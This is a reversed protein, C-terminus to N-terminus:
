GDIMRVVGCLRVKPEDFIEEIGQDQLKGLWGGEAEPSKGVLEGGGTWAARTIVDFTTAVILEVPLCAAEKMRAAHATPQCTRAWTRLLSPKTTSSSDPKSLTSSM